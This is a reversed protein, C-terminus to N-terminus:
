DKWLMVVPLYVFWLLSAIVGFVIFVTTDLPSRALPMSVSLFSLLNIVAGMAWLLILIEIM